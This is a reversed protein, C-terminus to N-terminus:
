ARRPQTSWQMGKVTTSDSLKKAYNALAAARGHALVSLLHVGSASWLVRAMPKVASSGASSSQMGMAKAANSDPVAIPPNGVERLIEATKEFWKFTSQGETVFIDNMLDVSCHALLYPGFAADRWNSFRVIARRKNRDISVLTLSLSAWIPVVLLSPDKGFYPPATSKLIDQGRLLPFGAIGDKGLTLYSDTADLKAETSSPLVDYSVESTIATQKGNTLRIADYSAELTDGDLALRQHSALKKTQFQLEDWWIWLKADFAVGTAGQPISLNLRPANAKMQGKFDARLKEVISNLARCQKDLANHFEAVVTNRPLSVSGRKVVSVGSWIEYIRERPIGNTLFERYYADKQLVPTTGSYYNEATDFLTVVHPTPAFIVRKM